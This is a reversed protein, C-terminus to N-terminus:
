PLPISPMVKMVLDTQGLAEEVKKVEAKEKFFSLQKNVREAAFRSATNLVVDSGQKLLSSSAVDVISQADKNKVADVTAQVQGAIKRAKETYEVAEILTSAVKGGRPMFSILTKVYFFYDQDGRLVDLVTRYIASTNLGTMADLAQLFVGIMALKKEREADRWKKFEPSAEIKAALARATELLKAKEGEDAPFLPARSPIAGDEVVALLVKKISAALTASNADTTRTTLSVAVVDAELQALRARDDELREVLLLLIEEYDKPSVQFPLQYPLQTPDKKLEMLQLVLRFQELRGEEIANRILQVQSLLRTLAWDLRRIEEYDTHIHDRAKKWAAEAAKRDADNMDSTFTLREPVKREIGFAHADAAVRVYFPVDRSQLADLATVGKQALVRYADHSTTDASTQVDAYKTSYLKYAGHVWEKGYLHALPTDPERNGCAAILPPSSVLAVLPFTAFGGLLNRRGVVTV